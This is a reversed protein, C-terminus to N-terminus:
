KHLEAHLDKLPNVEFQDLYKMALCAADAGAITTFYAVKYHLAAARISHSEAISKKGEATNVVLDVGGNKILDVCDPRGEKVKNVKKVDIGAHKLVKATGSTAFIAFGQDILKQALGVVAPKDADRVSLLVNGETPLDVSSAI